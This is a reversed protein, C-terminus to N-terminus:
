GPPRRQRQSCQSGFLDFSLIRRKLPPTPGCFSTAEAVFIIFKGKVVGLVLSKLWGVGPHLGVFCFYGSSAPCFGPGALVVPM